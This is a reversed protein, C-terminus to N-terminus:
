PSTENLIDWSFDRSFGALDDKMWDESLLRALDIMVDPPPYRQLIELGRISGDESATLLAGRLSTIPAVRPRTHIVQGLVFLLDEGIRSHLVRDFEVPDIAVVETLFGCLEDGDASLLALIAGLEHADPPLTGTDCRQVLHEITLTRSFSGYTLTLYEASHSARASFLLSTVISTVVGAVLRVTPTLTTVITSREKFTPM